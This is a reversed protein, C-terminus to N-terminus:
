KAGGGFTPRNATLSAVTWPQGASAEEAQQAPDMHILAEARGEFLDVLVQEVREAEDHAEVLSMASPLVLHLDIFVTQGSQWTRLQHIGLWVPSRRENLRSCIQELIAPDAADMLGAVSRRVLGLGAFLVHIGVAIAVAGDLWLWGTLWTLALGFIVGVTTIVDALLHKGDAELAISRCRRGTQILLLGTGLNLVSAGAMIWLGVDLDPIPAPAALRSWGVYFIGLAALTVLGGEFGASFYEVKGHGYPHNEDPPKAAIYVSFTAFVSAVVNIVSELADSLVAASGTLRYALLKAALIIVGAVVSALVARTRLRQNHKLTPDASAM